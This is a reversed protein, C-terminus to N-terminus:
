PLRWPTALVLTLCALESDVLFPDSVFTRAESTAVWVLGGTEGLWCAMQPDPGYLQRAVVYPGVTLPRMAVLPWDQCPAPDQPLPQSEWKTAGTQADLALVEFRDNLLLVGDSRVAALQRGPWDVHLADIGAVGVGEPEKGPRLNLARRTDVTLRARPLASESPRIAAPVARAMHRSILEEVLRDLQDESFETAGIRVPGHGGLHLRQGQFAAALRMRARLGPDTAAGNGPAAQTYHSLALQGSGRVCRKTGWGSGPKRAARSGHFQDALAEVVGIGSDQMAQRIRLRALEGYSQEVHDVLLPHQEPANRVASRVFVLYADDEPSPAVGGVDRDNVTAILRAADNWSDARILRISNM